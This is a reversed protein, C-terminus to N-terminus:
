GSSQIRVQVAPGAAGAEVRMEAAVNKMISVAHGHLEQVQAHESRADVISTGRVIGERVTLMSSLYAATTPHVKERSSTAHVFAIEAHLRSGASLESVVEVGVIDAMTRHDCFPSTM